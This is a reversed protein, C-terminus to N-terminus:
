RKEKTDFTDAKFKPNIKFNSIEWEEYEHGAETKSLHHPLTIGKVNKYDSFVWRYEVEPAKALAEEFQKRRKESAAQRTQRLKEQQEPTLKREDQAQGPRGMMRMVQSLQKGQYSLMLLRHTKQEVYLRASFGEQGKVDIMDATGDPEKYEGAYAYAFSDFAPTTLLWGLMVRVFDAKRRVQAQPDNLNERSPADSNGSASNPVRYTSTKDDEQVTVTTFPQSSESRRFKDPLLISYELDSEMRSEGVTRRALATVSLSELGKLKAEGGIAARAQKMIQEAKSQADTPQAQAFTALTLASIITLVFKRM